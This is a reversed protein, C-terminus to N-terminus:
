RFQDLDAPMWVYLYQGIGLNGFNFTFGAVEPYSQSFFWPINDFIFAATTGGTNFATWDAVRIRKVLFYGGTFGDM